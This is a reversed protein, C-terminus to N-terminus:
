PLIEARNKIFAMADDRISDPGNLRLRELVEIFYTAGVVRPIFVYNAGDNYMAMAASLSDATPIICSEPALQRLHRLLKQNTTGKLVKDPITCVIIKASSLNLQRLTDINAIDGYHCPVNIKKLEQHAEPNFDVVLVGKLFDQPYRAQIEFLLSSAEKYFGLLVIQPSFKADQEGSPSDVRVRDKFGFLSVFPNLFLFVQHSAPVVYSSILATVVLAIIFAPLFHADVHGLKIGLTVLVLSFESVQSLNLAPLLSARNAYGMKYLVPFVTLVRSIMVFFVILSTLKFVESNPFPVQLGLSVFFLTIFFDRLSSIKAAVDLHYPFSAISIGAVLGGMELSLSLTDALGCIAFCWGLALILMLEPHRGSKKFLAPLLFRALAAATFVLVCVKGASLALASLSMDSLNPQVALFGVAFLDQLVLVGLTIRSPLSDLDMQDSLIKVIILTSSLACAVALYVLNFSGSSYGALAFFAVGGLTCLSIQVLGTALVAKGTQMLKKLNIELGLIFMLLVLGIESLNAISGSDSIWGFGLHPGLMVGALLYALILPVGILHSLFGVSGAAIVAKGIDALFHDQMRMGESNKLKCILRAM